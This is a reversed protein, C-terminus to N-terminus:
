IKLIEDAHSAVEKSHTVVIVNKNAKVMDKLIGIIEKANEDDVSATPEDVLIVSANKLYAKALAVRQQEGGSLFYVEKNRFGELNLMKLVDDIERHRDILPLSKMRRSMVLNYEVTENELLGYNQFVFSIDNRLLKRKDKQKTVEIDDFLVKGSDPQEILGIMNLLTTKGSGSDGMIVNFNGPSFICNLAVFLERDGYKKYLDRVEIKM